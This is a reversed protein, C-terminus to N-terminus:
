VKNHSTRDCCNSLDWKQSSGLHGSVRLNSTHSAKCKCHVWVFGGDKSLYAELTEESFTHAKKRVGNFLGCHTLVWEPCLNLSFFVGRATWVSNCKPIARLLGILLFGSTVSVGLYCAADSSRSRHVVVTPGNRVVGLTVPQSPSSV